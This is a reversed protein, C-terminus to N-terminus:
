AHTPVSGEGEASASRLSARSSVVKSSAARTGSTSAKFASVGARSAASFWPVIREFVSAPLAVVLIAGVLAGSGTAIALPVVERRRGAMERRYGWAGFLNGTDAIGLAPM